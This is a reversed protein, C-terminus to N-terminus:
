VKIIEFEYPLLRIPETKGMVWCGLSEHNPYKKRYEKPPMVVSHESDPLLGNEEASSYACVIIKIKTGISIEM